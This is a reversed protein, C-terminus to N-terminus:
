VGCCAPLATTGRRHDMGTISQIRWFGAFSGPLSINKCLSACGGKKCVIKKKRSGLFACITGAFMSNKSLSVS